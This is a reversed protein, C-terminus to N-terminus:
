LPPRRQVTRFRMVRGLGYIEDGDLQFLVFRYALTPLLETSPHKDGFHGGRDVGFTLNVM